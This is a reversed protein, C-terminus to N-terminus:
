VEGGDAGLEGCERGIADVEVIGAARLHQPPHRIANVIVQERAAHLETRTVRLRLQRHLFNQRRPARHRLHNVRRMLAFDHHPRRRRRQHKNERLRQQRTNPGTVFNDHGIGIM